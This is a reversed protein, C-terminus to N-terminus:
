LQFALCVATWHGCLLAVTNVKHLTLVLHFWELQKGESIDMLKILGTFCLRSVSTNLALMSIIEELKYRKKVKWASSCVSACTSPPFVFTLTNKLGFKDITHYSNPLVTSLLACSLLLDVSWVYPLTHAKLYRVLANSCIIFTLGLHFTATFVSPIHRDIIHGLYCQM